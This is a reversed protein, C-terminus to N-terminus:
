VFVNILPTLMKTPANNAFFFFVFKVSINASKYVVDWIEKDSMKLRNFQKHNHNCVLVTNVFGVLWIM